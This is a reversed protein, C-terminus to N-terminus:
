RGPDLPLEMEDEILLPAREMPTSRGTPRFGVRRYLGVAPDRDRVVELRLRQHGAARAWGVVTEVLAKGVGRRRREPAVWMSILMPTGDGDIAGGACGIWAGTGADVAVFMAQDASPEAVARARAQWWEDPYRVQDDHTSSFADRDAALARLRLERWRLWDEARVRRIAPEDTV